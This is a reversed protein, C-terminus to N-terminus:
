KDRMKQWLNWTVALSWIFAGLSMLYFLMELRLSGGLLRALQPAFISLLGASAIVIAITRGQKLAEDDSSQNM